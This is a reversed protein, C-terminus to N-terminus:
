GTPLDPLRFTDPNLKHRDRHDRFDKLVRSSLFRGPASLPTLGKAQAIVPNACDEVYKLWEELIGIQGLKWLCPIVKRWWDMYAGRDGTAQKVRLFLLHRERFGDAGVAAGGVGVVARETDAEAAQRSPQHRSRNKKTSEDGDFRAAVMENRVVELSVIQEGNTSDNNIKNMKTCEEISERAIKEQVVRRQSNAFSREASLGEAECWERYWRRNVIADPPLLDDIDRGRSFVNRRELGALLPEWKGWCVEVIEPDSIQMAACFGAKDGPFVGWPNRGWMRMFVVHWLRYEGDSCAMVESNLWDSPFMYFGPDKKGDLRKGRGGAKKSAM